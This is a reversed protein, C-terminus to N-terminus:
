RLKVLQPTIPYCAIVKPKCLKAGLAVAMSAEIVKREM